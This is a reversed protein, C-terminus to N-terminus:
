LLAFYDWIQSGIIGLPQSVPKILALPIDATQIHPATIKILTKDRLEAEILHLPLRGWGLGALILAKKAHVDTVAWRTGVGLVGSAYKESQRSTDSLIIQTTQSTLEIDNFAEEHERMYDPSAVPLMSVAPLAQIQWKEHQDIKGTIAMDAEGLNLREMAGGLVEFMLEISSLPYNRQCTKLIDAYLNLPAIVDIVIRLTAEVGQNVTQTFAQLNQSQRLILTAKDYVNQGISTLQPRYTDKTLLACGLQEELKQIAYTLAPQSRYCQKAAARYSGTEVIATFLRLQELTFM